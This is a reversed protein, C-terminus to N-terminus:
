SGTAEHNCEGIWLLCNIIFQGNDGKEILGVGPFTTEGSGIFGSDATVVIRGPKGTPGRDCAVAFYRDETSRGDRYDQVTNPLSVIPIGCGSKISCCNNTIISRVPTHVGVGRIIPHTSHLCAAPIEVLTKWQPSAFFSNEIEIGFTRALRKDNATMDPYPRGPIDGHNSMLLLGGGSQVFEFIVTLETETYEADQIKRTAIILVDIDALMDASLSASASFATECGAMGKVKQLLGGLRKGDQLHIKAQLSLSDILVRM